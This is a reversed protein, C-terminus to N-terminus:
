SWWRGSLFLRHARDPDRRYRLVADVVLSTGYAVTACLLLAAVLAGQEWPSM